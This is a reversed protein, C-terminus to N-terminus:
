KLIANIEAVQAPTLASNNDRLNELFTKQDQANLYSSDDIIVWLISTETEDAAESFVALRDADAITVRGIAIVAALRCAANPANALAKWKALDQISLSEVALCHVLLDRIILVAFHDDRSFVSRAKRSELLAPIQSGLKEADSILAMYAGTKAFLSKREQINAIEVAAGDRIAYVIPRRLRRLEGVTLELAVRFETMTQTAPPPVIHAEWLAVIASKRAEATQAAAMEGRFQNHIRKLQERDQETTTLEPLVGLESGM